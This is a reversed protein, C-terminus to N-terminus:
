GEASRIADVLAVGNYDRASVHGSFGCRRGFVEFHSGRPFTAIRQRDEEGGRQKGVEGRAREGVRGEDSHWRLFIDTANQPKTLPKRMANQKRKVDTVRWAWWADEEEGRRAGKPQRGPAPQWRSRRRCTNRQLM